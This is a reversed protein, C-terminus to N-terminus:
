VLRCLNGAMCLILRHTHYLPLPLIAHIVDPNVANVNAGRAILGKLALYNGDGALKFIHKVDQVDPQAASYLSDINAL